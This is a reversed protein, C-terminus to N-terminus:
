RDENTANGATKMIEEVLIQSQRTVPLLSRVIHIRRLEREQRSKITSNEARLAVDLQEAFHMVELNQYTYTGAAFHLTEKRVARDVNIIRIETKRCIDPPM